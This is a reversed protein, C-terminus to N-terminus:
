VLFIRIDAERWIKANANASAMALVEEMITQNYSKYSQESNEDAKENQQAAQQPLKEGREERRRQNSFITTNTRVATKVMDQICLHVVLQM